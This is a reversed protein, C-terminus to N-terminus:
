RALDSCPRPGKPAPYGARGHALILRPKPLTVAVGDSGGASGPTGTRLLESLTKFFHEEVPLNPVFSDPDQRIRAFLTAHWATEDWLIARRPTVVTHPLFDLSDDEWRNLCQPRRPRHRGSHLSKASSVSSILAPLLPMPFVRTSCTSM